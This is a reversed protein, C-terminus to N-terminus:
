NSILNCNHRHNKYYFAGYRQDGLHRFLHPLGSIIPSVCLWELQLPVDVFGNYVSISM